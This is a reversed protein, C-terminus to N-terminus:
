HRDECHATRRAPRRSRAASRRVDQLFPGKQRRSRSTLSGLPSSRQRNAAPRWSAGPRTRRGTRRSKLGCLTSSYPHTASLWPGFSTRGTRRWRSQWMVAWRIDLSRPLNASKATSSDSSTTLTTRSRTVGEADQCVTDASIRHSWMGTELSAASRCGGVVALKCQRWPAPGPTARRQGMGRRQPDAHRARDDAREDCCQRRLNSRVFLGLHGGM